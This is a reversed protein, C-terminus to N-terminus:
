SVASGRGGLIRLAAAAAGLGNDINVVTIGPSTSNLMTLLASVGGFATGYGSSTPVAIVPGSYVGGLMTALAGDMDSFVICLSAKGIEDAASMLGHIGTVGMDGFLQCPVSMEALFFESEASAMLDSAGSAILAVLPADAAPPSPTPGASVAMCSSCTRTVPYEKILLDFADSELRTALARGDREHMAKFISLVEVPTKGRGYLVEPLVPKPPVREGKKSRAPQPKSEVPVGQTGAGKTLAEQLKKEEEAPAKSSSALQRVLEEFPDPKNRPSV